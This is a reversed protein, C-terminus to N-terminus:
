SGVEGNNHMQSLLNDRETDFKPDIYHSHTDFILPKDLKCEDPYEIM